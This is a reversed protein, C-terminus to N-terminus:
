VYQKTRQKEGWTYYVGLYKLWNNKSTDKITSPM